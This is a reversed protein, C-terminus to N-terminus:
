KLPVKSLTADNTASPNELPLEDNFRCMIIKEPLEPTSGCASCPGGKYNQDVCNSLLFILGTKGDQIFNGAIMKAIGYYKPNIGSSDTKFSIMKSIFLGESDSDVLKLDFRWSRNLVLIEDAPDNDFNGCAVQDDPQFYVPSLSNLSKKLDSFSHTADSYQLEYFVARGNIKGAVCIVAPIEAVARHALDRGHAGRQMQTGIAQEHDADPALQL